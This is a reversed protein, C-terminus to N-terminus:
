ASPASITHIVGFYNSIGFKLNGCSCLHISIPLSTQDLLPYQGPESLDGKEKKSNSLFYFSIKRIPCLCFFVWGVVWGNGVRDM